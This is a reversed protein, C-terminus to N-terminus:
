EYIKLFDNKINNYDAPKYPSAGSKKVGYEYHRVSWIDFLKNALFENGKSQFRIALKKVDNHTLGIAQNILTFVVENYNEPPNEKLLELNFEIESLIDTQPNRM